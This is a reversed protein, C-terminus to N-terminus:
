FKRGRDYAETSPSLVELIVAPNLLTDFHKDQLKPEGCVVVADPYTYLGTAQIFVRMDSPLVSCPKSRLQQGLERIANALIVNHSLSAGSMAFMEGQYYESKVEAKREIELYQEPTLYNKAQTSM